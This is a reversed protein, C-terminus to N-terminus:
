KCVNFFGSVLLDGFSKSIVIEEHVVSTQNVNTMTWEFPMSFTIEKSSSDYSFDNIKDYYTIVQITQSGFNPDNIQYETTQPISIGANFVLPNELENSYNNATLISIDFKYLGGESLGPGKVNVTTSELGLLSGFFNGKSEEEVIIDDTDESIFNFVIFGNDAKLEDEFLFQEGRESKILFTVERLTIKSDFNILSISIQQDSTEEPNNTSSAVELTVQKGDLDVPPFTESGVGHGYSNDITLSFTLTFIISAIFISNKKM